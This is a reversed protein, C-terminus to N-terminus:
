FEVRNECGGIASASPSRCAFGADERRRDVNHEVYGPEGTRQKMVYRSSSFLFFFSFCRIFPSFLRPFLTAHGKTEM